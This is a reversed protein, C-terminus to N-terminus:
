ISKVTNHKQRKCQSNKQTQNHRTSHRVTKRAARKKDTAGPVSSCRSHHPIITNEDKKCAREGTINSAAARAPADLERQATCRRGCRAGSIALIRARVRLVRACAAATPGVVESAGYTNAFQGWAGVAICGRGGDSEPPLVASRAPRQGEGSSLASWRAATTSLWARSSKSKRHNRSRGSRSTAVYRVELTVIVSNVHIVSHIKITQM